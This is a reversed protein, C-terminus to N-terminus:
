LKFSKPERMRKNLIQFILMQWMCRGGSFITVTHTRKNLQVFKDYIPSLQAVDVLHYVCAYLHIHLLRFYLDPYNCVYQYQNSVLMNM